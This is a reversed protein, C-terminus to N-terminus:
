PAAPKPRPGWRDRHTASVREGDGHVGAAAARVDTNRAPVPLRDRRLNRRDGPPGGHLHGVSRGAGPFGGVVGGAVAAIGGDRGVRGGNAQTSDLERGVDGGSASGRNLVVTGGNSELGVRAVSGAGPPEPPLSRPMSSGGGLSCPSSSVRHRAAPSSGAPSGTVRVCLDSTMTASGARATGSVAGVTGAARTAAPACGALLAVGAIGALWGRTFRLMTSVTM